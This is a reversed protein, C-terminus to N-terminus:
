RCELLKEDDSTRIILRRVNGQAILEEHPRRTRQRRDRDARDLHEDEESARDVQGPHEGM